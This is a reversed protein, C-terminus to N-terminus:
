GVLLYLGDANCFWSGGLVTLTEGDSLTIVLFLDLYDEEQLQPLNMTANNLELAYAGPAEGPELTIPLESYDSGNYTLLLKASQIAPAEGSVSLRPLQAQIYALTLTLAGDGDMWSDLMMNCYSSLSSKLYVPIDVVPNEPTSLAFQQRTGDSGTLICYFGYGDAAELEATATFATGDWQCPTNRVEQGNLRISFSATMGEEYAGPTASLTVTAGADTSWPLTTLSWDALGEEMPLSDLRATLADVQSQLQQNQQQLAQLEASHDAPTAAPRLLAFASLGLALVACILAIVSLINKKESM